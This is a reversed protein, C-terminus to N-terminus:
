GGCRLVFREGLVLGSLGLRHGARLADEPTEVIPEGAVNFSTNVLLPLGTVAEFERLVAALRPQSVPDLTQVRCTGDVHTVAPIAQPRRVRAVFSMYPSTGDFDFFAQCRGALVVAGYPRFWERRKLANLRVRM